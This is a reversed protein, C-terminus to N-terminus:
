ETHRIRQLGTSQIGGPEKTQPIRYALIICHTAMRKELTDKQGLSQVQIEHMIPLHNVVQAVLFSKLSIYVKNKKKSNKLTRTKRKIWNVIFMVIFFIKFFSLNLKKVILVSKLKIKKITLTLYFVILQKICNIHKISSDKRSFIVM